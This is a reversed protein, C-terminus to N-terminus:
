LGQVLKSKNCNEKFTFIFPILYIDNLVYYSYM